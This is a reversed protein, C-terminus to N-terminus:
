SHTSSHVFKTIWRAEIYYLCLFSVCVVFEWTESLALRKMIPIRIASLMTTHALLLDRQAFNWVLVTLILTPSELVDHSQIAFDFSRTVELFTEILLSHNKIDYYQQRVTFSISISYM